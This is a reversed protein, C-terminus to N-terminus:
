DGKGGHGNHNGDPHETNAFQHAGDRHKGATEVSQKDSMEQKEPSVKESVAQKIEEIQPADARPKSYDVGGFSMDKVKQLVEGFRATSRAAAFSAYEDGLDNKLDPSILSHRMNRGHIRDRGTVEAPITDWDITDLRYIDEYISTWESDMAEKDPDDGSVEARAEEWSQSGILEKLEERIGKEIASKDWYSLPRGVRICDDLITRWQASHQTRYESEESASMERPLPATPDFPADDEFVDAFGDDTGKLSDRYMEELDEESPPQDLGFQKVWEDYGEDFAAKEEPTLGDYNKAESM